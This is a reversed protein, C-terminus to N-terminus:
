ASVENVLEKLIMAYEYYNDFMLEGYKKVKLSFNNWIFDDLKGDIHRTYCLIKDLLTVTNLNVEDAFYYKFIKPHSSSVDFLDKLSDVESLVAQMQQKFLYKSSQYDKKWDTYNKLGSESFINGVWLNDKILNAIIIEKLVDKPYKSSYKEFFYKDKRKNFSALSAKSKSNFKLFSYNPNSFHIKLSIYTRYLEFPTM